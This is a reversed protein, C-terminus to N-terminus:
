EEMFVKELKEKIQEKTFPKALYDIFGESLYKEKSGILADATLAIVKTNFGEIEKLEKLTTEGSKEPMMIDMLILDYKIGSKVKNIAADGSDVSDIDLNFHSLTRTAVKINLLNDDVILIKKGALNIEKKVIDKELEKNDNIMKSIKQPIQVVFLSGEGYTSQVNIVGNMMEVLKKTIALGLGTGEVTTNREVDLRDFKNFLKDIKDKKIGIGTDKVSVILLCIDNQNICKVTLDVIGEKTYKFSNSLLNNLIQKIRLKDGVLEFPIDTAMHLKFDIHKDGIRTVNIKAINIILERPNYTTNIIELKESEIKSIDLINGVIELLTNSADVINKSEERIISPIEGSYSSIDESLGVIANLPTRIEHSMSSLFESKARNAREAQEKLITMEELMKVDPNEITFYMIFCVYSMTYTAILISPSITQLIVNIILLVITMYIPYYKKFKLIKPNSLLVVIWIFLESGLIFKLLDVALDYSYIENNANMIKIPLTMFLIIGIVGIISHITYSKRNIKEIKEKDKIIETFIIYFAYISFFVFWIFILIIYLRAFIFQIITNWDNRIALQLLIECIYTCINEITLIKFLYNETTNIHEKSSFIIFLLVIFSLGSFLFLLNWM